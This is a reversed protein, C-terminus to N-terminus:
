RLGRRKRCDQTASSSATVTKATIKKVTITDRIANCSTSTSVRCGGSRAKQKQCPGRLSPVGPPRQELTKHESHLTEIVVVRWLNQMAAQVRYPRTPAGHITNAVHCFGEKLKQSRSTQHCKCGM